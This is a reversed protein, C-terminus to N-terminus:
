ETVKKSCLVVEGPCGGERFNGARNQEFRTQRQVHIGEEGHCLVLLRAHSAGARERGGLGAQVGGAPLKYSVKDNMVLGEGSTVSCTLSYVPDDKNKTPRSIVSGSTVCVRLPGPESSGTLSPQLQPLRPCHFALSLQTQAGLGPGMHTPMHPLTCSVASDPTGLAGEKGKRMKEELNIKHHWTLAGSSSWVGTMKRLFPLQEVQATDQASLQRQQNEEKYNDYLLCRKSYIKFCM